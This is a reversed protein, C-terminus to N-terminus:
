IEGTVELNAPNISLLLQHQTTTKNLSSAGSHHLKGGGWLTLPGGTALFVTDGKEIPDEGDDYLKFRDGSVLDNFNAPAFSEGVQKEVRRFQTAM